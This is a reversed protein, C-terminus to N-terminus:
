HYYPNSGREAGAEAFVVVERWPDVFEDTFGEAFSHQVVAQGNWSITLSAWTVNPSAWTTVQGDPGM